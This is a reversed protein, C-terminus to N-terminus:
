QGNASLVQAPEDVYLGKFNGGSIELASPRGQFHSALMGTDILFIRGNFRPTIRKSGHITHGLVLYRAKFRKLVRELHSGFEEEPNQAWGRYWLPGEASIINWDRLSLFSQLITSLAPDSGGGSQQVQWEAKAESQAEELTQYPWLVGKASLKTWIEDMQGIEQRVRENIERVNKLRLEPSLGGHLFIADGIQTVADRKRLWRGYKGQPSFAQRFEVFGPPHAELWANKEQEDPLAQKGSRTRQKRYRLYNEWEKQRLQESEPSAFSAYEEKSVYRLDGMMVMTEHNGLLARVDGGQRPAKESLDMLLDLVERSRPGRDMVDGTQVLIAPGGTWALDKDVIGASKLIQVFPEYAGHVDGVAVVREGAPAAVLSVAPALALLFGLSAARV